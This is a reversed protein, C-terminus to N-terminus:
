AAQKHLLNRDVLYALAVGVTYRLLDIWLFGKGLILGGLLTNRIEVLWDGQYLKSFEILWCFLLALLISFLYHNKKVFLRLGFYIMSAWIVDGLHSQIVQPYFATYRSSLGILICILIATIYKAMRNM